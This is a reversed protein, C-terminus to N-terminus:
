TRRLWGLPYHTIDQRFESDCFARPAAHDLVFEPHSKLFEAAAATPNNWDWDPQGGPVDHLDKMVGDTVVAFSGSTVLDSYAELEKLVHDYTHCSDLILLCTEDPQIMEKVHAVIEPAVSDGEVLTILDSVEHSEIAARNHSRIEVDVGIVRGKGLVRCLSAYYVLSGGHAVGTEVIVDPQIQYIAEQVRIMDEPLQIVPRGLWSFTYSYRCAWGVKLWQQSLLEFAETGYLDVTRPGKDGEITLTRLETDLTLKV